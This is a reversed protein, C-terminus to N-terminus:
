KNQTISIYPPVVELLAFVTLTQLPHSELFCPFRCSSVHSMARNRPKWSKGFRHFLCFVPLAQLPHSELFCPFRCSSVHSMARNRPKWSKGFRHFLGFVTFTQLPHSQLFHNQCICCCFHNKHLKRVRGLGRSVQVYKVSKLM